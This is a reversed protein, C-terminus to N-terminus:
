LCMLIVFKISLLPNNNNKIIPRDINVYKIISLGNLFLFFIDVLDNNNEKIIKKDTNAKILKWTTKLAPKSLLNLLLNM